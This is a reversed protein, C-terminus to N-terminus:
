PSGNRVIPASLSRRTCSASPEAPTGSVNTTSPRPTMRWWCIPAIMGWSMGAIRAAQSAARHLRRDRGDQQKGGRRRQGIRQQRRRFIRVGLQGIGALLPLRLRQHLRHAAEDALPLRDGVAIGFHGAVHARQDALADEGAFAGVLDACPQDRAVAIPDGVIRRELGAVQGSQAAGTSSSAAPSHSARLRNLRRPARLHDAPDRHDRERQGGARAQPAEDPPVLGRQLEEAGRQQESQGAIGPLAARREVAARLRRRGALPQRVALEGRGPGAHEAAEVDGRAPQGDGLDILPAAVAPAAGLDDAAPQALMGVVGVEPDAEAIRQDDVIVPQHARRGLEGEAAGGPDRRVM